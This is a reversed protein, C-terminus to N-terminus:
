MYQATFQTMKEDFCPFDLTWLLKGKRSVFFFSKLLLFSLIIAYKIVIKQLNSSLSFLIKSSFNSHCILSLNLQQTCIVSKKADNQCSILFFWSFFQNSSIYTHIRQLFRAIFLLNVITYWNIQKAVFEEAAMECLCLFMLLFWPCKEIQMYFLYYATRSRHAILMPFFPISFISTDYYCVKSCSIHGGM